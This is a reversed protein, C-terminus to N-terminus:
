TWQPRYTAGYTQLMARAAEETDRYAIGVFRVGPDQESSWVSQLAPLEDKCPKCWSAWLNLVAIEGRLSELALQQGDFTNLVFGPAPQGPLPRGTARSVTGHGTGWMSLGAVALAAIGLVLGGATWVRRRRIAVPSLEGAHAQPWLAVAGVTLFVLGGLWLFNALPNVIVKLTATAGDDGVGALVVYLDERLGSRPAPSSTVQDSNAYQSLTPQLTTVYGGDRYVSVDASLTVRDPLPQQRAEEYVFTYGRLTQPVGVALAVQEEFPYFRTGIVGLAMLIVGTHVLYGGYRRRNRGFLAWLAHFPGEGDDRSRAAVAFGYEALTTGCALGIIAFGVLSDPRSFGALALGVTLILALVIGPLARRRLRKMSGVSAGLLPCVGMALVLAGFQPGTVRDFWQPSAEFRGAGMAETITPLISGIFVSATTTLLLILALLFLGERSIFGRSPGRGALASRQRAILAVSVALTLGMFGLFYPGLGSHGFAHVSQILGSRTTFTGFLVLLFSAVVLM